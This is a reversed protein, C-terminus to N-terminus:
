VEYINRFYGQSSWKGPASIPDWCTTKVNKGVLSQAKRTVSLDRDFTSIKITKKTGDDFNLITNISGRYMVDTEVSILKQGEKVTVISGSLKAANMEKRLRENELSLEDLQNNKEAVITNSEQLEKKTDALEGETQAYIEVIEDNAAKLEAITQDRQAILKEYDANASAMSEELFLRSEPSTKDEMKKSFYLASFQEFSNAEGRLYFDHWDLLDQTTIKGAERFSKILASLFFETEIENRMVTGVRPNPYDTIWLVFLGQETKGDNGDFKASVKFKKNHIEWEYNECDYLNLATTKPYHIGYRFPFSDLNAHHHAVVDVTLNTSGFIMTRGLLLEPATDNNKSLRLFPLSIM